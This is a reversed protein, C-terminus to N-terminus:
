LPRNFVQGGMRVITALYFLVVLLGLGLAIAISRNRQRRKREREQRDAEDSSPSSPPTM